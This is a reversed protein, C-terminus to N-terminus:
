KTTLVAHSRRGDTSWFKVLFKTGKPVRPAFSIAFTEAAKMTPDLDCVIVGNVLKGWGSSYAGSPEQLTYIALKTIPVLPTGKRAGPEATNATERGAFGIVIKKIPAGVRASLGLYEQWGEINALERYTVSAQFERALPVGFITVATQMAGVASDISGRAREYSGKRLEVSAQALTKAASSVSTAIEEDTAGVAAPAASTAKRLHDRALTLETKARTLKAPTLSWPTLQKYARLAAKRADQLEFAFRQDATTPAAATATAFPVAVLALGALAAALRRQRTTV